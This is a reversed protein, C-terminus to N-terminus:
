MMQSILCRYYLATCHNPDYSLSTLPHPWCLSHDFPLPWWSHRSHTIPVSDGGEHVSACLVSVQTHGGRWPKVWNKCRQTAGWQWLYTVSKWWPRKPAHERCVIMYSKMQQKPEDTRSIMEQVGQPYHGQVFTGVCCHKRGCRCHIPGSFTMSFKNPQMFSLDMTIVMHVTMGLVLM